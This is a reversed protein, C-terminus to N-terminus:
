HARIKTFQRSFVTWETGHFAWIDTVIFGTSYAHGRRTGTLHLKSHVVAYRGYLRTRSEDWRVEGPANMALAALWEGKSVIQGCSTVEMFDDSLLRACRTADGNKWADAWDHELASLVVHADERMSM